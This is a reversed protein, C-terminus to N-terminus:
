NPAEPPPALGLIQAKAQDYEEDSLAGSRHLAALRELSVVTEHAPTQTKATDSHQRSRVRGIAPSFRIRLQDPTLRSSFLIVGCSDFEIHIESSITTKVTLKNVAQAALIGEAAGILGFGGGQIRPGHSRVGPGGFGLARVASLPWIASQGRSGIPTLYLDSATTALSALMGITFPTNWGGIISCAPHCAIETSTPHVAWLGQFYSLEAVNVPQDGHQGPTNRTQCYPCPMSKVQAVVLFPCLCRVCRSFEFSRNCKGCTLGREDVPAVTAKLCQSCMVVATERQM